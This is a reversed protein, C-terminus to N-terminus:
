QEDEFYFLSIGVSRNNKNAPFNKYKDEIEDFKPTLLNLYFSTVMETVEKKFPKVANNPISISYLNRQFRSQKEISFNNEITEGLRRITSSAIRIKEKTVGKIPMYSKNILKLKNGIEIVCKSKLLSDLIPGHSINKGFRQVLSEFSLGGGSRKLLLPKGEKECFPKANYWHDLINAERSRNCELAESDQNKLIRSVERRDMGTQFAISSIKGRSDKTTKNIHKEAEEVFLERVINIFSKFEVKNKVLIKIFPRLGSKIFDLWNVDFSLNTQLQNLVKM